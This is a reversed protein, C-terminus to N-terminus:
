LDGLSQVQPPKSGQRDFYRSWFGEVSENEPTTGGFRPIRWILVDVDRLNGALRHEGFQERFHAWGQGRYFSLVDSHQLMDSAIVIRRQGQASEFHPTEAILAQLAEMIPSLNESQGTLMSEVTAEIPQEFEREYREELLTQNEYIVSAEEGSTPKCKSFLAGWNDSFESVVGISVMTDTSARVIEENLMTKLRSQQTPSLPDTLDLLVITVHQVTGEHCLTNSDVKSSSIVSNAFWGVSGILAFCLLIVIAWIWNKAQAKSQRGRRKRRRRIAM